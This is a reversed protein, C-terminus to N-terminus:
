RFSSYIVKANISCCFHISQLLSMSTALIIQFANGKYLPDTCCEFFSFKLIKCFLVIELCICSDSVFNRRSMFSPTLDLKIVPYCMWILKRKNLYGTCLTDDWQPLQIYLFVWLYKYELRDKEHYFCLRLYAATKYLPTDNVEKLLYYKTPAMKQSKTNYGVM